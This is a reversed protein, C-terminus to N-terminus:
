ARSYGMVEKYVDMVRRACIDPKFLQAHRIGKERMEHRLSDNTAVKYLADAMEPVSGPDVYLAADGGTEPLCSTNSTIVPLKSWLAELVPLGFGEFTSPYVMATALQYIGPFDYSTRYGPDNRTHENDSLFIVSRQLGAQAIYDQVQKKYGTGDGNGIVVLPINLKGKLEHLAKCINLLNKREIISGVYLFYKEPLSYKHRITEKQQDNLLHEFIPNCSQYCVRIKDPSTGYLDVIDQKTQQSIAIIKDAHKCANRFKTRYMWNDFRSYQKPYREFILDHITVVSRVDTNQIGFPIENSLGHYLDVHLRELDRKMGLVRWIASIKKSLGTPSIVTANPMAKVTFSNNPKPAMLYYMDDPYGKILAQILTRSYHGLGTQNQFARKADFAIHM